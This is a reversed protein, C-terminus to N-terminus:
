RGPEEAARPKQAQNAKLARRVTVSPSSGLDLDRWQLGLAESIRLGSAALLEILDAWRPDVAEIVATREAPTLAKAREEPDEDGDGAIRLGAAPNSRIDSMEFADAFM